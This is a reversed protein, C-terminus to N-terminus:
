SNNVAIWNSTADVCATGNFERSNTGREEKVTYERCFSNGQIIVKKTPTVTYTISTVANSWKTSKGLSKDLAHSFKEKDVSDMARGISGGIAEPQTKTPPPPTPSSSPLMTQLPGFIQQSVNSNCSALLISIVPIFFPLWNIKM